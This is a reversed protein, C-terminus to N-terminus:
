ARNNRQASTWNPRRFFAGGAEALRWRLRPLSLGFRQEGYKRLFVRTLYSLAVLVFALAVAAYSEREVLLTLFIPDDWSPFRRDMLNQLGKGISPVRAWRLNTTHEYSYSPNYGALKRTAQTFVQPDRLDNATLLRGNTDRLIARFSPDLVVWRKRFQVEAVVHAAALNRDLLVLRRAPLGSSNALNVFANTASGCVRLLAQYNLTEEPDRQPLVGPASTARRSPGHEMWSLIAEAKGEQSASAPVIADSFGKLYRRASHEWAISYLLFLISALLFGNVIYWLTQLVSHRKM